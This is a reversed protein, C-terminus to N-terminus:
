RNGFVGDESGGPLKRRQLDARGGPAQFRQHGRVQRRESRNLNLIGFRRLISISRGACSSPFGRVAMVMTSPSSRTRRVAIRTWSFSQPIRTKWVQDIGLQDSLLGPPNYTIATCPLAPPTFSPTLSSIAVFRSDCRSPLSIIPHM